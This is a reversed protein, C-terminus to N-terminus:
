NQEGNGSQSENTDLPQWRGDRGCVVIGEEDALKRLMLFYPEAAACNQSFIRALEFHRIFQRRVTSNWIEPPIYGEQYQYSLHQLRNVDRLYYMYVREYDVPSLSEIWEVTSNTARKKAWIEPWFDANIQADFQASYSDARAQVM